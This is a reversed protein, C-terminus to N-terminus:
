RTLENLKELLEGVPVPKVMVCSVMEEEPTGYLDEPWGSFVVVPIRCGSERIRRILAIGDSAQPLSLDMLLLQAWGADLKSVAAAQESVLAIEHGSSGLLSGFLMLQEPDDDLILIRAV